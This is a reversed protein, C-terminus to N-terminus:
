NILIILYIIPENITLNHTIVENNYISGKIEPFTAPIHLTAVQPRNFVHREGERLRQVIAFTPLSHM